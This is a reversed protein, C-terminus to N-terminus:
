LVFEVDFAVKRDKFVADLRDVLNVHPGAPQRVADSQVAIIQFQETLSNIQDVGAAREWSESEDDLTM